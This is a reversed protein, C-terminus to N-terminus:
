AAPKIEELMHKLRMQAYWLDYNYQMRLLLEPMEGMLRKFRLTMDAMVAGKGDLVAYLLQRAM